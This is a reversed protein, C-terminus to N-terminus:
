EYSQMSIVHRSNLNNPTSDFLLMNYSIYISEAFTYFLFHFPDLKRRCLFGDLFLFNEQCFNPFFECSDFIHYSIMSPSIYTEKIDYTPFCREASSHIPSRTYMLYPPTLLLLKLKWLCFIDQLTIGYLIHNGVYKISYMRSVPMREQFFSISQKRSRGDKWMNRNPNLWLISELAISKEAFQYKLRFLSYMEYIRVYM